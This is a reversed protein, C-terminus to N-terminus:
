DCIQYKNKQFIRLCADVVEPDYLISKNRTIEDLAKDVGLAPRYPRHSSMAEMVDAVALIRSELLIDDKRLGNPYGSGNMREHHEIIMRAVPWPFEINQLIDYGSQAHTKIFGFEIDTLRVPRSLIDAPIFAKGIDHISAAMSIGEIQDTTLGIEKAIARALDAVRRQHGAMYPDRKEVLSSIAHVTAELAELTLFFNQKIGDEARKNKTIDRINCQVLRSNNIMHVDIDITQGAKNKISADNYYIINGRELTRLIDNIHCKYDPFGLDPLRKGVCEKKSYGSMAKFARNAYTITGDSKKLLLIGDNSTEYIHRHRDESEELVNELRKLETIDKIALFILPSGSEKHIIHRANLLMSKHGIDPFVHEIEYNDIKEKKLIEELLTRLRLINWQQNGLDYILLGIAEEPPINFTDYFCRNASLVMLDSNLVLLPERIIEVIDEYSIHNIQDTL